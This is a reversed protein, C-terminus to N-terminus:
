SFVREGGKSFTCGCSKSGPFVAQASLLGRVAFAKFLPVSGCNLGIGSEVDSSSFPTLLLQNDPM